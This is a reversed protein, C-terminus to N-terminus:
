SFKIHTTVTPDVRWEDFENKIRPLMGEQFLSKNRVLNRINFRIRTGKQLGDSFTQFNFWHM